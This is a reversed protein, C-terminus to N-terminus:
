LLFIHKEALKHTLLDDLAIEFCSSRRGWWSDISLFTLSSLLVNLFQLVHRYIFFYVENGFAHVVHALHSCALFLQVGVNRVRGASACGNGRLVM